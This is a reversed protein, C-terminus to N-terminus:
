TVTKVEIEWRSKKTHWRMGVVEISHTSGRTFMIERMEWETMQLMKKKYLGQNKSDLQFFIGYKENVSIVTVGDLHEGKKFPPQDHSHQQKPLKKMNSNEIENGQSKKPEMLRINEWDPREQFGFIVRQLDDVRWKKRPFNGSEKFTLIDDVNVPKIKTEGEWDLCKAVYKPGRFFTAIRSRTNKFSASYIERRWEKIVGEEFLDGDQSVKNLFTINDWTGCMHLTKNIAKIAEKTLRKGDINLDLIDKIQNLSRVVYAQSLRNGKTVSDEINASGSFLLISHVDTGSFDIGTQRMIDILRKKAEDLREFSWHRSKGNQHLIGKEDMSVTGAYNKVEILALRDDMVVILDIERTGKQETITNLRISHHVARVMPHKEIIKKVNLEAITAADKAYDVKPLQQNNLSKLWQYNSFLGM